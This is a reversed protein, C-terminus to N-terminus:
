RYKCVIPRKFHLDTEVAMLLSINSGIATITMMLQNLYDSFLFIIYLLIKQISILLLSKTFSKPIAAAPKATPLPAAAIIFSGFDRSGTSYEPGLVSDHFNVAQKFHGPPHLRLTLSISLKGIWAKPLGREGM